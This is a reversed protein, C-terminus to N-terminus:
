HRKGQAPRPKSTFRRILTWTSSDCDFVTNLGQEEMPPDGMYPDGEKWFIRDPQPRASGGFAWFNIGALVGGNSRSQGWQALLMEYYCDRWSTTASTDFLGNDRPLGFEEIVLPKRLRRALLVHENIYSATKAQVNPFGAELSDAAFWAWNKPWIHITLYDVNRDAHLLEYLEPIQTGITGEHGLCVLQQPAAKKIHAATTRAWALYAEKEELRMPRPENALEWAMLVPDDVYKKGTVVNTRNLLLDVQAHYASVCPACGYFNSGYQTFEEWTLKRRMVSDSLKGAWNLYQLFGGSWEWNNSLMLIAKMKRQGMEALVLDLSKLVAEDFVGPQPQLPPGVRPVGNIMGSGEAGALLRLNTVGQSQLFDLEYRLREIGRAPDRQLGLLSGYWYNTGVYYYPQGDLFFQGNRAQVFSQASSGLSSCLLIFFLFRQFM